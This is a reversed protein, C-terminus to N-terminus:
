WTVPCTTPSCRTYPRSTRTLPCRSAARSHRINYCINIHLKVESRVKDTSTQTFYNVINEYQYCSCASVDCLVQYCMLCSSCRRSLVEVYTRAIIQHSLVNTISLKWFNYIFICYILIFIYTYIHINWFTSKFQTLVQYCMYRYFQDM